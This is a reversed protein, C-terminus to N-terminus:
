VLFGPNSLFFLSKGKNKWAGRLSSAHSQKNISPKLRFKRNEIGNKKEKKPELKTHHEFCPDFVCLLVEVVISEIISM